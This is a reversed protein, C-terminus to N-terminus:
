RPEAELASNRVRLSARALLNLRRNRGRVFGAIIRWWWWWWWRRRGSNLFSLSFSELLPGCDATFELATLSNTNIGKIGIEKKEERVILSADTM